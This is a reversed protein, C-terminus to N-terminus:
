ELKVDVFANTNGSTACATVGIVPLAAMTTNGGATIECFITGVTGSGIRAVYGASTGGALGQTQVGVIGKTQVWGFNAADQSNMAIGCAVSSGSTVSLSYPVLNNFKSGIISLYNASDISAILPDYLELRASTATPNGYASNGKIRYTTNSVPMTGALNNPSITLYGGRYLNTSATSLAAIVFRSGKGNPYVGPQESAMQYTSSSPFGATTFMIQMTDTTISAMVHGATCAGGFHAYRFVAGDSREFKLGIPFKPNTDTAYIDVDGGVQPVGVIANSFYTKTSIAM